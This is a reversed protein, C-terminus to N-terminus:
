VILCQRGGCLDVVKGSNPVGDCGKCTSNTGGCVGCADIAKGSNPVGDCGVCAVHNGFCVGCSDLSSNPCAGSIAVSHRFGLSVASFNRGVSGPVLYVGSTKFVDGLGLQGDVNQGFAYLVVGECYRLNPNLAAGTKWLDPHRAWLCEKLSRKSIATLMNHFNGAAISM